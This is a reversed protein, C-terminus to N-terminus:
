NVQVFIFCAYGVKWVGAIWFMSGFVDNVAWALSAEKRGDVERWRKELEERRKRRSTGGGEISGLGIKLSARIQWSARKFIGPKLEGSALRSNWENAAQVRRDWAADLQESLYGSERSHDLKWLDTAQLTRQYGLVKSLYSM